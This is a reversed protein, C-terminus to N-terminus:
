HALAMRWPNSPSPGRDSSLPSLPMHSNSTEAQHCKEERSKLSFFIM